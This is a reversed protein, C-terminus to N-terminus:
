QVEEPSLRGDGNVDATHVSHPLPIATAPQQLPLFTFGRLPAVTDAWPTRVHFGIAAALLVIAAAFAAVGTSLLIISLWLGWAGITNAGGSVLIGGSTISLSLASTASSGDVSIGTDAINIANVTRGAVLDDIGALRQLGPADVVDILDRQGGHHALM